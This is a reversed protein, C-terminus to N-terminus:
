NGFGNYKTLKAIKDENEKMLIVNFCSENKLKYNDFGFIFIPIKLFM